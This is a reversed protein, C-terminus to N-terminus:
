MRCYFIICKEGSKRSPADSIEDCNEAITELNASGFVNVFVFTAYHKDIVLTNNVNATLKDDDALILKKLLEEETSACRHGRIPTAVVTDRRMMM